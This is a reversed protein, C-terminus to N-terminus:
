YLKASIDPAFDLDDSTSAARDLLCLWASCM